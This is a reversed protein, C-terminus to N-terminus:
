SAHNAQLNKPNSLYRRVRISYLVAATGLGFFFGLILGSPGMGFTFAFLYGIPINLVIYALFSIIAIIRVQQLGRLVGIMTCQTVDVIQYVAYFILLQSAIGLVEQNTTFPLPLIHRLLIFSLTVIVGWAIAMHLASAVTRRMGDINREGYFHSTRITVASGISITILFVNIGYTVAIQNASIAEEGFWGMMIGTGVFASEELLMQIAMPTGIGLLRKCNKLYDIKREFLLIYFRYERQIFMFLLLAIFASIRAILTALGAGTVGMAESGWNGFIFIYNLMVNVVNAVISAAMALKTNGLGELFQRLCGFLMVFPMSYAMLHFYPVAMDVVEKPQGMKYLLPTFSLQLVMFAIGLLTNLLVGSQLYHAIKKFRNQTFCEGILPTIGLTIGSAFCFFLYSIMVAFGVSALPLPDDGGYHGVMVNDAFQVVIYGLQAFAVPLALRLNAIYESRYKQWFKVAAFISRIATIAFNPLSKIRM